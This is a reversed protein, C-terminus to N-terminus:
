EKTSEHYIDNGYFRVGLVYFVIKTNEGQMMAGYPCAKHRGPQSIAPLKPYGCPAGRRM